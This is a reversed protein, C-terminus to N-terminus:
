LGADAGNALEWRWVSREQLFESADCFGAWRSTGCLMVGFVVNDRSRARWDAKFRAPEVGFAELYGFPFKM